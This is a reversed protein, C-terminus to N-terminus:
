GKREHNGAERLRSVVVAFHTYPKESRPERRPKRREVIMETDVYTYLSIAPAKKGHFPVVIQIQSSLPSPSSFSFSGEKRAHSSMAFFSFPPPYDLSLQPSSPGVFAKTKFFFAKIASDKNKRKYSFLIYPLNHGSLKREAISYLCM